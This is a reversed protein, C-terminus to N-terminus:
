GEEEVEVTTAGTVNGAADRLITTKKVVRRPRPPPPPEPQPAPVASLDAGGGSAGAAPAGGSGPSRGLLKRMVAGRMAKASAGAPHAHGVARAVRRLGGRSLGSLLRRAEAVEGATPTAARGCLEAIRAAADAAPAPPPDAPPATSSLQTPGPLTDMTARHYSGWRDAFAKAIGEATPKVRRWGRGANTMHEALAKRENPGLARAAALAKAHFEPDSSPGADWAARLDAVRRGAATAPPAAPPAPPKPAAAPKPPKPAKREKAPLVALPEDAMRALDAADADGAPTGPRHLMRTRVAASRRGYIAEALQRPPDAGPPLGLARLHGAAEKRPLTLAHRAAANLASNPTDPRGASEYAARVDPAAAPAAQVGGEDAGPKRPEASEAAAPPEPPRDHPKPAAHGARALLDARAAEVAAPGHQAYFDAAATEGAARLEGARRAMLDRTADMREDITRGAPPRGGGRIVEDLDRWRGYLQRFTENAPVKGAALLPDLVKVDVGGLRDLLKGVDDTPKAPHKNGTLRDAAAVASALAEHPAHEAAPGLRDGPVAVAHTAGTGSGIESAALAARATAPNPHFKGLYQTQDLRSLELHRGAAAAALARKFEDPTTGAPMRPKLADYLDSTFVKHTLYAKGRAADPSQGFMDPLSGAAERVAAALAAPDHPDIPPAPAVEQPEQRDGQPGGRGGAQGRDEQRPRGQDEPVAARPPTGQREQEGRGQGEEAAHTPEEPTTTAPSEPEALPERLGLKGAVRAAAVLERHGEEHSVEGAIPSGPHSGKWVQGGALSPQVERSSRDNLELPSLGPAPAESFPIPPGDRGYQGTAANKSTLHVHGNHLVLRKGEASSTQWMGLDKAREPDIYVTRESARKLGVDKAEHGAHPSKVRITQGSPHRAYLSGQGTRFFTVGSAKLEDPSMAWPAKAAPNDPIAAPPSEAQTAPLEPGVEKPPEPTSEAPLPKATPVEVTAQEPPAPAPEAPPVAAPEPPVPKGEAWQPPADPDLDRALIDRAGGGPAVHNLLAAVMADRRKVNRGFTGSLLARAYRLQPVTLAPLHDALEALHEPTGRGANFARVIESARKGSAERRERRAGPKERAYRHKGSETNLWRRGGRPGEDYVWSLSVGGGRFVESLGAPDAALAALEDHADRYKLPDGEAHAQEQLHLMAVACATRAHRDLRRARLAHRRVVPDLDSLLAPGALAVGTKKKGKDSFTLRDATVPLGLPQNWRRLYKDARGAKVYAITAHPEYTPWTYTHPLERLRGHLRHLDTGDAEVKLVDYPKGTEAGRFASVRGLTFSVPGFGALKNRVDGPDDGHLGYLCTVHPADERGNEGLDDDDVSAAMARLRDAAPGALDIQTSGFKHGTAASLMAALRENERRLAAVKRGYRSPVGSLSAGYRKRGTAANIFGSGGKPGHHPQWSGGGGGGGPPKGGGGAPSGGGGGPKPAAQLIQKALEGPEIEYQRDGFNALVLPKIVAEDFCDIVLGVMEDVSGFYAAAPVMRGSWGSGVESAELVEPPIGLGTLIEQDLDKPYDRIGAVDARSAPPIRDWAYKGALNDSPNPDNPWTCFGGNERKEMMERALDQASRTVTGVGGPGPVAQDETPHYIDGGDFAHTWYWLRRSHVAGNRGRKELWPEFAGQLRPFDYYAGAEAQGAFWFAHPHFVSELGDAKAFRFGALEGRAPGDKYELALADQPNVVRLRRFVVRRTRRDYHNEAGAPCYGWKFYRDLVRPLHKRWFRRLTRDVFQAVAANDARVQWTVQQFPARLMLLGFRVKPDRLMRPVDFYTFVPSGDLAAATYGWWNGFGASPRYGRTPNRTLTKLDPPTASM